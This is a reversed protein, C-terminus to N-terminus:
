TEDIFNSSINDIENNHSVYNPLLKESINETKKDDITFEISYPKIKIKIDLLENAIQAKLEYKSKWTNIINKFISFYVAAGLLLENTILIFELNEIENKIIIFIPNYFFFFVCFVGVIIAVPNIILGSYLIYIINIIKKLVIM